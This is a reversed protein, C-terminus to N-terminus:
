HRRRPTASSPGAGRHPTRRSFVRTTACRGASFSRGSTPVFPTTRRFPTVTSMFDGGGTRLRRGDGGGDAGRGMNGARDDREADADRDQRHLHGHHVGVDRRRLAAQGTGQPPGDAPRGDGPLPEGHSAVGGPRLGRDDGPRLPVGGVDADGGPSRCPRFVPPGRGHGARIGGPDCAGDGEAPSQTGGGDEPHPRRDERVGDGHRHRLRDRDRNGRSRRNGRFRPQSDRDPGVGAGSRPREDQPRPAVGRDLPVPGGAVGGGRCPPRGGLHAGRGVAPARRRPRPGVGRDATGGRGPGRPRVGSPAAAVGRDGEGGQVGALLQVSRQGRQGGVGGRRAPADRRSIRDARRGLAPPGDPPHVPVPVERLPAHGPGRPDREARPAAPAERRGVPFTGGIPLLTGRAGGRRPSCPRTRFSRLRATRRHCHIGPPIRHLRDHASAAKAM